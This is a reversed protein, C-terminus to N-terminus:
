GGKVENGYAKFWRMIGVCIRDKSPKESVPFNNWFRCDLTLVSMYVRDTEEEHYLTIACSFEKQKAKILNDLQSDFDYMVKM